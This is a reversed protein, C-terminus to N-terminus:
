DTSRLPLPQGRHQSAEIAGGGAPLSETTEAGARHGPIPVSRRPLAITSCASKSHSKIPNEKKM